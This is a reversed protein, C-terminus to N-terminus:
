LPVRPEPKPCFNQVELSGYRGIAIAAQGWFKRCDWTVRFITAVTACRTSTTPM